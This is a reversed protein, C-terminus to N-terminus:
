LAEDHAGIQAVGRLLSDEAALNRGLRTRNRVVRANSGGATPPLMPANNSKWASGMYPKVGSSRKATEKEGDGPGTVARHHFPARKAPAPEVVAHVAVAFRPHAFHEAAVHAHDVALDHSRQLVAGGKEGGGGQDTPPTSASKREECSTISIKAASGNPMRVVGPTRSIFIMPRNTIKM